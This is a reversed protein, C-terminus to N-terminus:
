EYTRGVVSIHKYNSTAMMLMLLLVIAMSGMVVLFTVILNSLASRADIWYLSIICEVPITIVAAYMCLRFFDKAYLLIIDLNGAGHLKRIVLERSREKIWFSCVVLMNGLVFLYIVSMVVSCISVYAGLVADSFDYSDGQLIQLHFSELLSEMDYTGVEETDSCLYVVTASVHDYQTNVANEIKTLAESTLTDYLINVRDSEDSIIDAQYIGAVVFPLGEIDIYHYGDSEYTYGTYSQGIYAVGAYSAGSIDYTTELRGDHLLNGICLYAYGADLTDGVQLEVRVISDFPLDQLANTFDIFSIDSRGERWTQAFSANGEDDDEIIYEAGDDIVEYSVEYTYDTVDEIYELISNVISSAHIFTVYCLVISIVILVESTVYRIRM